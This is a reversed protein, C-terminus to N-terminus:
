RRGYLVWDIVRRNAEDVRARDKAIYIETVGRRSHGLAQGIVDISVGLSYAISAWTHRAWYPSLEPWTIRRVAVVRHKGDRTKRYDYTVGGMSKLAQGMKHLYNRYDKHRDLVDVLYGTGRHRNIIEVAEPELKIDVPQGTKSRRTAIRGHRMADAPLGFLDVPSLGCLLFMLKFMDLYDREHPHVASDWLRRLEEVTLARHRTPQSKVKFRRFPYNVTLERTIADNIVARINRMHVSRSNASPATLALHADFRSLWDVTVDELVMSDAGADWQRIRRLTYRYLDRTRGKHLEAVTGFHETFRTGRKQPRYDEGNVICRLRRRVEDPGLQQLEGAERWELLSEQVQLLYRGLMINLREALPHNVVQGDVFQRAGLRIGLWVLVPRGHMSVKLMLPFEGARNATTKRKDLLIRVKM